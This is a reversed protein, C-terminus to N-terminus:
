VAGILPAVENMCPLIRNLEISKSAYLGKRMLMKPPLPVLQLVEKQHEHVWSLHDLVQVDFQCGKQRKPLAWHLGLGLHLFAYQLCSRLM